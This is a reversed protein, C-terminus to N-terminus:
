QVLEGIYKSLGKIDEEPTEMWNPIHLVFVKKFDALCLSVKLTNGMVASKWNGLESNGMRARPHTGTGLDRFRHFNGQSAICVVDPLIVRSLWRCLEEKTLTNSSLTSLTHVIGEDVFVVRKKLLAAKQYKACARLVLHFSYWFLGNMHYRLVYLCLWLFSAPHFLAFLFGYWIEPFRRYMSLDVLTIMNSHRRLYERVFTSKGGGPVGCFEVIMSKHNKLISGWGM